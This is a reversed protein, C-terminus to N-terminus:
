PTELEKRKADIIVRLQDAQLGMAEEGALVAANRGAFNSGAMSALAPRIVIDAEKEEYGAITSGMISFTQLLVSIVGTTDASAPQASIDVAIVLDAGLRRAIRVPVPSVLGGDVYEANGIKVPEFIGPVSASARVALGTNGREFVVLQGSQLDTATAAFKRDLKEIPRDKLAHNIYNQLSEGKFFGRSPFAWDSLVAEDMSLAMRNLEIGNYGGAYLSGVVSGASTGVIIDPYIGRAELAKIVGIHAFGRAAGGGLALGIRLPRPPIKPTTPMPPSSAVPVPAPTPTMLSCAGLGFMVLAIYTFRTFAAQRWSKKNVSDNLPAVWIPASAFVADLCM